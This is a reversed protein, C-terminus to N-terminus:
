GIAAIVLSENQWYPKKIKEVTQFPYIEGDSYFGFIPITEGIVKQIHRIEESAGRGMLKLRAMSNIIIIFEPRKGLLGDLAEKAAETAAKKCSEKNGIMIHVESGEPINGQCLISGDPFIDIIKRLLYEESGEVLIGLPYLITMQGLRSSQFHVSNEGFFETYLNAAPYGNITRIISGESKTVIRPKGLPRWGHRSGISVQMHGGMLLGIASRCQITDQFIQFTSQFKFDDCSGAGIIPFIQGFVSQLGFILSASDEIVGDTLMFFMSRLGIGFKELCNKALSAGANFANDKALNNVNSISFKVDDSHLTLIALGHTSIHDSLIIGSTSCGLIKSEGLTNKIIPFFTEPNYHATCVILCIDIREQKIQAKAQVIAERLAEEGNQKNSFGMGFEITM